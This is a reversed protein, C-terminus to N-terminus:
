PGGLDREELGQQVVEVGLRRRHRFRRPLVLHAGVGAGLPVLALLLNEDPLAGEHQPEGAVPRLGAVVAGVIEGANGNERDSSSVALQPREEVYASMAAGLDGASAA